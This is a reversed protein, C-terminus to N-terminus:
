IMQYFHDTLFICILVKIDFIEFSFRLVDFLWHESLYNMANGSLWEFDFKKLGAMFYVLFLQARIIFYQWFPILVNEQKNM